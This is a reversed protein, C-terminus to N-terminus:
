CGRDARPASPSPCRTRRCPARDLGVVVQPDLAQRSGDDHRHAPQAHEREIRHRALGGLGARDAACQTEREADTAREAGSPAALLIREGRQEREQSARLVVPVAADQEVALDDVQTALRLAAPGDALDQDFVEGAALTELDLEAVLVQARLLPPRVTAITGSRMEIRSRSVPSGIVVSFRFYPWRTFTTPALTGGIMRLSRASSTQPGFANPKSSGNLGMSDVPSQRHTGRINVSRSSIGAGTANGRGAVSAAAIANTSVTAGCRTAPM